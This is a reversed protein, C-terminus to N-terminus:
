ARGSKLVGTQVLTYIQQLNNLEQEQRTCATRLQETYDLLEKGQLQALLGKKDGEAYETVRACLAQQIKAQLEITKSLQQLFIGALEAGEQKIQGETKRRAPQQAVFNEAACYLYVVLVISIVLSFRQAYVMLVM